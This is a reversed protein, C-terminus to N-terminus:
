NEGGYCSDLFELRSRIFSRLRSLSNDVVNPIDPYPVTDQIYVDEGYINIYSEFESIISSESLASNRLGFYRAKMEESYNDQLHKLLASYMNMYPTNGMKANSANLLVGEWSLDFTADMDYASLYWKTMDVTFMLMNKALGDTGLIIDQFVFYDIASQIDFRDLDLEIDPIPGDTNTRQSVIQNWSEQIAVRDTGVKIEWADEYSTGDIWNTQFNCPNLRSDYNHNDNVQADILAHSPNNEDLGLMWAGKPITLNYLGQYAGNVYIKVPFGDIAGNNPSTRLAEPLSDYDPRSAVVKGWLKACVVNRAHLIDNYDAKLVFHSSKGWGKFNEYLRNLRSEDKYLVIDLNKKPLGSTSAGQIKAYIYSHFRSTKSVYDVEMPVYVKKNPMVGRFFISPVDDHAPEVVESSGDRTKELIHEEHLPLIEKLHKISVLKDNTM